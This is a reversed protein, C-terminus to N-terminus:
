VCVYVFKAIEVSKQAPIKRGQIPDVNVLKISIDM